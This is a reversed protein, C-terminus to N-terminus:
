AASGSIWSVRFWVWKIVRSGTWPLVRSRVRRLNELIGPIDWRGEPRILLYPDAGITVSDPDREMDAIIEVYDFDSFVFSKSDDMVRFGFRSWFNVLRIRHIPM